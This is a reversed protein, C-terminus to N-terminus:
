WYPESGMEPVNYTYTYICMCVYMCVRICVSRIRTLYNCEQFQLITFARSSFPFDKESGWSM